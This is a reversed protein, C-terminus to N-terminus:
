IRAHGARIVHRNRRRTGKEINPWGGIVARANRQPFAAANAPSCRLGGRRFSDQRSERLAWDTRAFIKAPRRWPSGGFRIGGIIYSQAFRCLTLANVHLRNHASYARMGPVFQTGAEEGIGTKSTPGRAPSPVPTASRSLPRTRLHAGCDAGGLPTRAARASPRIRERL